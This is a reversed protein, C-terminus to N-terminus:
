ADPTMSQIQDPIAARGDDGAVVHDRSFQDANGQVLMKFSARRQLDQAIVATFPVGPEREQFHDTDRCPLHATKCRVSEEFAHCVRIQWGFFGKQGTSLPILTATIM